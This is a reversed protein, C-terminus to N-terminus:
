CCRSQHGKEFETFDGVKVAGAEDDAEVSVDVGSSHFSQSFVKTPNSELKRGEVAECVSILNSAVFPEKHVHINLSQTEKGKRTKENWFTKRKCKMHPMPNKSEHWKQALFLTLGKLM